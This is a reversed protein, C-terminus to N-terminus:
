SICLAHKQFQFLQGVIGFRELLDNSRLLVLDVMKLLHYTQELVFDEAAFAFGARPDIGILQLQERGWGFGFRDLRIFSDVDFPMGPFFTSTFRQRRIQRPHLNNVIDGVLLLLTGTPSLLAADPFICAFLEIVDRGLNLHDTM